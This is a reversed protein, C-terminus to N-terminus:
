KEQSGEEYSDVKMPWGIFAPYHLNDKRNFKQPAIVGWPRITLLLHLISAFQHQVLVVTAQSHMAYMYCMNCRNRSSRQFLRQTPSQLRWTMTCPRPINVVHTVMTFAKNHLLAVGPPHMEEKATCKNSTARRTAQQETHPETLDRKQRMPHNCFLSATESPLRMHLVCLQDSMACGNHLPCHRNYLQAPTGRRM